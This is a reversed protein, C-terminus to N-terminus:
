NQYNSENPSHHGIKKAWGYGDIAGSSGDLMRYVAFGGCVKSSVFNRLQDILGRGLVRFQPLNRNIAIEHNSPTDNVLVAFRHVPRQIHSRNPNSVKIFNALVGVLACVCKM